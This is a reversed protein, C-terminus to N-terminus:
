NLIVGKFKSFALVLLKIYLRTNKNALLSHVSPGTTPPMWDCDCFEQLSIKNIVLALAVSPLHWSM